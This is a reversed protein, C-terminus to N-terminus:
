QLDDQARNLNRAAKTKLRGIWFGDRRMGFRVALDRRARRQVPRMQPIYLPRVIKAEFLVAAGCANILGISPFVGHRRMTQHM